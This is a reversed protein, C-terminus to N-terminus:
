GIDTENLHSRFVKLAPMSMRGETYVAGLASSDCDLFPGNLTVGAWVVFVSCRGLGRGHLRKGKLPASSEVDSRTFLRGKSRPFKTKIKMMEGLCCHTRPADKLVIYVKMM